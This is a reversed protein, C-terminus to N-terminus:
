LLMIHYSKSRFSFSQSVVLLNNQKRCHRHRLLLVLQSWIGSYQLNTQVTGQAQGARPLAPCLLLYLRISCGVGNNEVICQVLIYVFITCVKIQWGKSPEAPFLWSPFSIILSTTQQHCPAQLDDLLSTHLLCPHVSPCYMYMAPRALALTFIFFPLLILLVTERIM